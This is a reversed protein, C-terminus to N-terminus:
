QRFSSVRHRRAYGYGASSRSEGGASRPSSGPPSRSGAGLLTQSGNARGAAVAERSLVERARDHAKRAAPNTNARDPPLPRLGKSQAAKASKDGKGGRANRASLFRQSGTTAAGRLVRGGVRRTASRDRGKAGKRKERAGRGQGKPSAATAAEADAAIAPGPAQKIGGGNIREKPSKGLIEAMSPKKSAPYKFPPKEGVVGSEQSEPKYKLNELEDWTLLSRGYNREEPEDDREEDALEVPLGVERRFAEEEEASLAYRNNEHAIEASQQQAEGGGM